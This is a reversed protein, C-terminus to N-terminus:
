YPIEDDIHTKVPSSESAASESSEGKRSDLMTLTSNFGSLVVETQYREIGSNDQWKRTQLSGELYIKAGKKLYNKAVSVLGDNFICVRHFETKEKKQGDAGKWRENTAVTLNAIEKGDQTRNIKPDATINGIIIVKNVSSM